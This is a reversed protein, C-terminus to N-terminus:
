LVEFVILQHKYAELHKIAKKKKKKLIMNINKYKRKKKKKTIFNQQKSVIDSNKTKTKRGYKVYYKPLPSYDGDVQM